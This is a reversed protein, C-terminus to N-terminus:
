KAFAPVSLEMWNRVWPVGLRSKESPELLVPGGLTLGKALGRRLPAVGSKVVPVQM